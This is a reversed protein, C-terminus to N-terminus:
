GREALSCHVSPLSSNVHSQERHFSPGTRLTHSISASPELLSSVLHFGPGRNAPSTKFPSCSNSSLFSSHGSWRPSSLLRLIVQPLHSLSSPPSLGLRRAKARSPSVRALGGPPKRRHGSAWAQAQGGGETHGRPDLLPLLHVALGEAPVQLVDVWLERSHRRCGPCRVQTPAPLKPYRRGRTEGDRATRSAKRATWM